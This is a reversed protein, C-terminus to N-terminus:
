IWNPFSGGNVEEISITVTDGDADSFAPVTFSQIMNLQVTLSTFSTTGDNFAPKSNVIVNFTYSTQM